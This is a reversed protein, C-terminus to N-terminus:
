PSSNAELSPSTAPWIPGPRQTMCSACARHLPTNDEVDVADVNAGKELCLRVAEVSGQSAALALPTCGADNREDIEVDRALCLHAVAAQGHICAVHLPSNGLSDCAHAVTENREFLM